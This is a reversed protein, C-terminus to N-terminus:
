AGLVAFEDKALAEVFGDVATALAALEVEPECEEAVEMDAVEVRGTLYLGNLLM